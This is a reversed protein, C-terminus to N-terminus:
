TMSAGKALRDLERRVSAAAALNGKQEYLALAQELHERAEDTRGALRDIEAFDALADAQFNVMDTDEALAVAGRALRKAEGHDGRRALIRARAQRWLMQAAVDDNPTIAEATVTLEIAEDLRGLSCLSSALQGM